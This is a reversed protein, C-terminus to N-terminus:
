EIYTGSWNSFGGIEKGSQGDYITVGPKGDTSSWGSTNFYKMYDAILCIFREKDQADLAVRWLAPNVWVEMMHKDMETIGGQEVYQEVIEKADSRSYEYQATAISPTIILAILIAPIIKRM